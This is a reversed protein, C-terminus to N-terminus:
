KELLILDNIVFNKNNYVKKKFNYLIKKINKVSQLLKIM